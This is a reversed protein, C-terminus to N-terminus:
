IGELWYNFALTASADADNTQVRMSFAKATASYAVVAPPYLQTVTPADAQNATGTEIRMKPSLAVVDGTGNAAATYVLEFDLYDSATNLHVYFCTVVIRQGEPIAVLFGTDTLVAASANIGPKANVKACGALGLRAAVLGADCVSIGYNDLYFTRNDYRATDM